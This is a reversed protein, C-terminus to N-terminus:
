RQSQMWMTEGDTSVRLWGRSGTDLVTRTGLAAQTVLELDNANGALWILAPDLQALWEPPNLPPYGSDALLLLEVRGIALGDHLAELSDFDLGLPFLARFDNWQILLVAGRPGAALVELFAGDDLDLRQGVTLESQAVQLEQAYSIIAKVDTTMQMAAVQAFAAPALREMSLPLGAIQEERQGAVLLWDLDRSLFPLHRGLQSSLETASSGGNILLNRGGPTRILIAEGQVDLLTIQLTGNPAAAVASWAWFALAALAVFAIVPSLRPSPIQRRFAPITLAFLLVYLLVVISLPIPPVTVAAWPLQAIAEVVRITYAALPWALFALMRGLPQWLLGLAVSAAGLIMIGPQVPLVLINAPLALVSFRQFHYLLLPLVTIQAAVSLLVYDYLPNRLREVWATSVRKELWADARQKLRDAYLVLGLTAAFSLQFGVDWLLLPNFLAILAAGFALTNLAFQQRGVQGALLAVLAMIAARVVSADAGVLLTYLIVGFATLIAANRLSLVRRFSALLFAAIISINFGSIAIIHRTGTDNFAAKLSESIGHEEGLLIGALLSAEPDPYMRYIVDLSLERLSYLASWFWNGQGHSVLEAEANLMVSHVNRRALYDKYSFDEYDAPTLLYGRLILEDGYQWTQGPQVRALLTGAVEQWRAGDWSIEDIRLILEIYGDRLAPPKSVIGRLHVWDERDNYYALDGGDLRLQVSAYRAAGLCAAILAILTLQYQLTVKGRAPLAILLVAAAFLLWPWLTVTLASAFLIGALFALSAWLLPLNRISNLLEQRDV